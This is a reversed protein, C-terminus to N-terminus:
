FLLLKDNPPVGLELLVLFSVGCTKESARGCDILEVADTAQVTKLDMEAELTSM